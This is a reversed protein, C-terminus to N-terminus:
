DHESVRGDGVKEWNDLATGVNVWYGLRVTERRAGEIDGSRFLHDLSDESARKREENAAKMQEIEARSQAAEIDERVEMVEMLLGADMDGGPASPSGAISEDEGMEVGRLSLLYRARALPNLITKYADNIRASAAEAKAKDAGQHRDPHARAQLQLFERRLSSPDVHFSGNPPPGSSLSSPFLDYHSRPRISEKYPATLRHDLKQTIQSMNYLMFGEIVVIKFNKSRSTLQGEVKRKLHGLQESPVLKLANEEQDAYVDLQWGAFSDPVAGANSKIHDLVRAMKPFDVGNIGDADVYGNVTPILSIDKCFDDGHLILSVYPTFVHRLLHALTTKGGSSPGSIGLLFITTPSPSTVPPSRPSSNAMPTREYQSFGHLSHTEVSDPSLSSMEHALEPLMDDDVILDMFTVESVEPSISTQSAETAKPALPQRLPKQDEEDLTILQLREDALRTEQEEEDQRKRKGQQSMAGPTWILDKCDRENPWHKPLSVSM